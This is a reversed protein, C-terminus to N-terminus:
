SGLKKTRNKAVRIKGDLRDVDDGLQDLMHTQTEVEDWIALSMEKQRKVIRSLVEVDENQEEMQQRQLQVVGANDLERTRETEQLPAGLSRFLM